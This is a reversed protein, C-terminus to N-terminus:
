QPRSQSESNRKEVTGHRFFWWTDYSDCCIQTKKNQLNDHRQHLRRSSVIEVPAERVSVTLSALTAQVFLRDLYWFVFMVRRYVLILIFLLTIKINMNQGGCSDTWLILETVEESINEEAIHKMIGSVVEQARPRPWGSKWEKKSKASHIGQNYLWVQRKYFM